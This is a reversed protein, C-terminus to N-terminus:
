ALLGRTVPVDFHIPHAPVTAPRAELSGFFVEVEFGDRLKRRLSGQSSLAMALRFLRVGVVVLRHHRIHRHVLRGAMDFDFFKKIDDIGGLDDIRQNEVPVDVAAHNLPQPKRKGLMEAGFVAPDSRQAQTVVLKGVDPIDWRQACGDDLRVM